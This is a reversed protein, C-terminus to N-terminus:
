DCNLDFLHIQVCPTGNELTITCRNREYLPDSVNLPLAKKPKLRKKSASLLSELPQDDSPVFFVEKEGPLM